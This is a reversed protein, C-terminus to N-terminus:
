NIMNTWLTLTADAVKITELNNNNQSKINLKIVLVVLLILVISLIIYLINRKM